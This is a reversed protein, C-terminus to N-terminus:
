ELVVSGGAGDGQKQLSPLNRTEISMVLHHGMEIFFLPIKLITERCMSIYIYINKKQWSRIETALNKMERSQQRM